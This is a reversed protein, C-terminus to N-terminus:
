LHAGSGNRTWLIDAPIWMESFGSGLGGGGWLFVLLLERGKRCMDRPPPPSIPDQTKQSAFPAGPALRAKSMCADQFRLTANIGSSRFIECPNTKKQSLAFCQIYSCFNLPRYPNFDRSFYTYQKPIGAVSPSLIVYPIRQLYGGSMFSGELYM